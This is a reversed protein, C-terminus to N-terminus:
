DVRLVAKGSIKRNKLATLADSAAEVFGAVHRPISLATAPSGGAYGVSFLIGGEIVHNWADVLTSGGLFALVAFVPAALQTL